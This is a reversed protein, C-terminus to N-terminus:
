ADNRRATTGERAVQLSTPADASLLCLISAFADLVRESAFRWGEFDPDLYGNDWRGM